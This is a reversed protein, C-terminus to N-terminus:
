ASRCPRATTECYWRSGAAPKCAMKRAVAAEYRGWASGYEDATFVAWKRRAANEAGRRSASEADGYHEHDAFCVKGGVRAQSHIQDIGTLSPGKKAKALAPATSVALVTAAALLLSTRLM